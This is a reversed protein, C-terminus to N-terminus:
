QSADFGYHLRPQDNVRLEPVKEVTSLDPVNREIQRVIGSLQGCTMMSVNIEDASLIYGSGSLRNSPISQSAKIEWGYSLPQFM